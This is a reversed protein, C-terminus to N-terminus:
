EEASDKEKGLKILTLKGHLFFQTYTHVAM